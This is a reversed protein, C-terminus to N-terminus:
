GCDNEPLIGVDGHEPIQAVNEVSRRADSKALHGVAIERKDMCGKGEENLRRDDAKAPADVKM